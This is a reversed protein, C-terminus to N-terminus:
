DVVALHLCKVVRLGCGLGGEGLELAEEGQIDRSGVLHDFSRHDIDAFM